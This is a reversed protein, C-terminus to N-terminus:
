PPWHLLRRLVLEDHPEEHGPRPSYKVDAIAKLSQTIFNYTSSGLLAQPMAPPAAQANVVPAPAAQDNAAPTPQANSARAAQYSADVRARHYAVIPDTYRVQPPASAAYAAAQANITAVFDAGAAAQTQPETANATNNAEILEDANTTAKSKTKKDEQAILEDLNVREGRAAM